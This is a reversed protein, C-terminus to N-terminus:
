AFPYGKGDSRIVGAMILIGEVVALSWSILFFIGLKSVSCLRLAIDAAIFLLHLLGRLYYRAYFDHFGFAGTPLLSLVVTGLRNRKDSEEVMVYKGKKEVISHPYPSAFPVDAMPKTCGHPMDHECGYCIGDCGVNDMGSCVSGCKPCFLDYERCMEGCAPCVTIAM